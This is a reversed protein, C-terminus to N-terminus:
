DIVAAIESYAKDVYDRLVLRRPASKHYSEMRVGGLWERVNRLTDTLRLERCESETQHTARHMTCKFTM